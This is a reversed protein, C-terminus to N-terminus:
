RSDLLIRVSDYLRDPDYGASYPIPLSGAQMIAGAYESCYIGRTKGYVEPYFYGRFSYPRGLQSNAYQVMQDVQAPSFSPSLTTYSNAKFRKSRRVRPPTAEYYVGALWVLVHTWRLDLWENILPGGSDTFILTGNTM